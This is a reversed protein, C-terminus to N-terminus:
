ACRCPAAAAECGATFAEEFVSYGALDAHAFRIRGHGGRLAPDLARTLRRAGPVPVAMAHGWRALEIRLLRRRLDPHAPQLTALVHEAWATWPRDRLAAREVVPLAHYSTLVRPGHRQQLSQHGADVYGLARQGFVVNDWSAPAGPREAPAKDLLLNAVLWPARPLGQALAQLPAKLRSASASLLRLAVQAPLALVVTGAQWAQVQDGVRVQLGVHHRAEDVQLVTHDTRLREGLPAALRAILWANGEPWTFVPDHDADDATPAQGAGRLGDPLAFGQRSGFYHLGAWASVGQADVGYDDLCCYDLYWRLRGDDLGHRGLWRAFTEGDLAAESAQGAGRHAPMSFRGAAAVLGAFRRYQQATASGPDAPPLLGDHWGGDVFLREQPSHCLHREDALTRGLESRLLGIEHAWEVLEHAPARPVPLYHAGLPCPQGALHHGRSNGGPEAELEFVRLDDIGQRVLGRAAALGAVGAGVVIAAARRVPGGTAPRPSMLRHGRAPDQGVWGGALALAPEDGCGALALAGAGHLWRRRSLAAGQGM